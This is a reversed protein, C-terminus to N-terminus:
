RLRSLRLLLFMQVILDAQCAQLKKRASIRSYHKNLFFFFGKPDSDASTSYSHIVSLM